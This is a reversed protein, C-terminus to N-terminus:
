KGEKKLREESKTYIKSTTTKGTKANINVIGVELGDEPCDDEDVKIEKNTELDVVSTKTIKIDGNELDEMKLGYKTELESPNFKKYAEFEKSDKGFIRENVRKKTKIRNNLLETGLVADKEQQELIQEIIKNHKNYFNIRDRNEKFSGLLTWKNLPFSLVDFKTKSGYKQMFEKAKEESDAVDYIIMAHDLDPKVGYLNETAERLKDYNIEYFSNFRCFTDNPPINDYVTKSLVDMKEEDDGGVVSVDKREPDDVIEVKSDQSHNLPDFKFFRNLFRKIVKRESESQEAVKQQVYDYMKASNVSKQPTTLDKIVKTTNAAVELLEDESLLKHIGEKDLKESAIKELLDSRKSNLFKHLEKFYESDYNVKFDKNADLVEMFDEENVKELLDEEDVTYENMMQYVFGVLGTAILKKLYSEKLYIVSALVSKEPSGMGLSKYLNSEEVLADLQDPSLDAMRREMEEPSDVCELLSEYFEKAKFSATASDQSVKEQISQNM